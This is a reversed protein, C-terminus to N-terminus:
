PDPDLQLEFATLWHIASTCDLPSWTTNVALPDAWPRLSKALLVVSKATLSM